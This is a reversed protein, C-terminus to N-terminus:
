TDYFEDELYLIIAASADAHEYCNYNGIQLTKDKAKAIQEDIKKLLFNIDLNSIGGALKNWGYGLTELWETEHRITVCPKNLVMAEMQLGGSDTIVIVSNMVLALFDIYGCPQMISINDIDCQFPNLRPHVFFKVKIVDSIARLIDKIRNQNGDINEARHLTMICYENGDYIKAARREIKELMYILQDIMTNGVYFKKGYGKYTTKARESAFFNYDSLYDTFVRNQEERMKPNNCREGAEVHAVPIGMRNAVFACAFTSNVDGIVMVLDPKYQKVPFSRCYGEYKEMIQAMQSIESLYGFNSNCGLNVVPRPINLEKFFVESMQPDFHQGTHIIKLDFLKNCAQFARAIPAAKIFNPRAGVILHVSIM